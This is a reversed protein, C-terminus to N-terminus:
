PWVCRFLETGERIHENVLNMESQTARRWGFKRCYDAQQSLTLKTESYGSYARNNRTIVAFDENEPPRESRVYDSQIWVDIRCHGLYCDKQLHRMTSLDAISAPFAVKVGLHLPRGAQVNLDMRTEPHGEIELTRAVVPISVNVLPAKGIAVGDLLVGVGPMTGASDMVDLSLPVLLSKLDWTGRYAGQTATLREEIGDYGAKRIRVLITEEPLSDSCPTTCFWAGNVVVEAGQPRTDLLVPM